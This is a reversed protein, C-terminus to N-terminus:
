DKDQTYQDLAVDLWDIAIRLEVTHGNRLAVVNAAAFAIRRLQLLERWIADEYEESAM